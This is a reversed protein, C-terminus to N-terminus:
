FNLLGCFWFCSVQQNLIPSVAGCLVTTEVPCLSRSPHWVGRMGAQNEVKEWPTLKVNKCETEGGGGEQVSLSTKRVAPIRGAPPPVVWCNPTYGELLKEISKSCSWPMMSATHKDSPLIHHTSVSAEAGNSRPNEPALSGSTKAGLRHVCM